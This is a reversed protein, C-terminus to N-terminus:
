GSPAGGSRSRVGAPPSVRHSPQSSSAGVGYRCGAGLDAPTSWGWGAGSGSPHKETM